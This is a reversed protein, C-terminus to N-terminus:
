DDDDFRTKREAKFFDVLVEKLHCDEFCNDKNLAFECFDGIFDDIMDEDGIYIEANTM